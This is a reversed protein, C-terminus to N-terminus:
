TCHGLPLWRAYPGRWEHKDGHYASKSFYWGNPRKEVTWMDLAYIYKANALM